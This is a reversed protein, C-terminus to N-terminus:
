DTKNIKFVFLCVFFSGWSKTEKITKETKNRTEIENIEARM